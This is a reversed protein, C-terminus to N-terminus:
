ARPKNQKPSDNEGKCSEAYHEFLEDFEPLDLTVNEFWMADTGGMSGGFGPCVTMMEISDRAEMVLLPDGGHRVMSKKFTELFTKIANEKTDGFGITRSNGTEFEVMWLPEVPEGNVWYDVTGDACEIAPARERHLNDNQYWYRDGNAFIVAPGGDRHLQGAANRWFKNGVDNIQTPQDDNTNM